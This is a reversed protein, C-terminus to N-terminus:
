PEPDPDPEPDGPWTEYMLPEGQMVLAPTQLRISYAALTLGEPLTLPATGTHEFQGGTAEDAPFRIALLRARLEEVIQALPPRTPDPAQTLIADPNIDLGLAYGVSVEIKCMALPADPEDGLADDGVWTVVAVFGAPGMMFRQMASMPDRALEVGARFGPAWARLDCEVLRILRTTYM